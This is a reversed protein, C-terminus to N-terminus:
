EFAQEARYAPILGFDLPAAMWEGQPSVRKPKFYRTTVDQEYRYGRPADEISKQV